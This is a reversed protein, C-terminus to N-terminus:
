GSCSAVRNGGGIIAPLRIRDLDRHFSLHFTFPSLHFAVQSDDLGLRGTAGYAKRLRFPRQMGRQLEIPHRRRPFTRLYPTRISAVGQAWRTAMSVLGARGSKTDNIPSRKNVALGADV